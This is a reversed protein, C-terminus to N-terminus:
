PSSYSSPQVQYPEHLWSIPSDLAPGQSLYKWTDSPESLLSDTRTMWLVCNGKGNSIWHFKAPHHGDPTSNGIRSCAKTWALGETWSCPTFLERKGGTKMRLPFTLGQLSIDPQPHFDQCASAWHRWCGMLLLLTSGRSKNVNKISTPTM